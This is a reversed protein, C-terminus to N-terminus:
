SYTKHPGNSFLTYLYFSPTCKARQM